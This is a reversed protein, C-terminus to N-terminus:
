QETDEEVQTNSPKDTNDQSQDGWSKTITTIIYTIFNNENNM